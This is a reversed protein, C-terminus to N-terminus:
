VEACDDCGGVHQVYPLLEPNTIERDDLLRRTLGNPNRRRYELWLAEGIPCAFPGDGGNSQVVVMGPESAELLEKIHRVFPKMGLM